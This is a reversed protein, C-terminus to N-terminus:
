EYPLICQITTGVRPASTRVLHGGILEARHEMLRLGMGDRRHESFGTGNDSVALVYGSGSRQLSVTILTAKSHKLANNLAEQAIRYLHIPVDPASFNLNDSCILRVDVGSRVKSSHVLQALAIEL